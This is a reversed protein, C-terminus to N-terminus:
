SENRALQARAFSSGFARVSLEEIRRFDRRVREIDHLHLVNVSLVAPSREAEIVLSGPTLTIFGSIIMATLDSETRLPLEVVGTNIRNRPTVIEWALVLNAEVLKFLFFGVFRVVAIPSVKTRQERDVPPQGRRGTNATVMVITAVGAGGVFNAVSIDAWLLVWLTVIWLWVGSIRVTKM